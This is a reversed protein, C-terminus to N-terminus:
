NTIGSEIAGTKVELDWDGGLTHAGTLDNSAAIDAGTLMALNAVAGRLREGAAFNCGYILVDGEPALAQRMVAFANAYATPVTHLVLRSSGLQLEGPAGHALIHLADIRQREALVTAIQELGDRNTALYVVEVQSALSTILSQHHDINP